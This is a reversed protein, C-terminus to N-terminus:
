RREEELMRLTEEPSPLAPRTLNDVPRRSRRNRTDRNGLPERITLADSHCGTADHIVGRSTTSSVGHGDSPADSHCGATSSRHLALRYLKTQRDSRHGRWGVHAILGQEELDRLARQVTRPALETANSLWAISPWAADEDENFRDALVLLVLKRSHHGTPMKLAWALAHISM